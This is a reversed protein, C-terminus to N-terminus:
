LLGLAGLTRSLGEKGEEELIQNFDKKVQIIKRDAVYPKIYIYFSLAAARGPADDDTVVVVRKFTKCISAREKSEKSLFDGVSGPSWVSARIGAFKASLANLEGEVVVLTDSGREPLYFMPKRVGSPSRYKGGPFDPNTIRRKYYDYDPWLIYFSDDDCHLPLGGRVPRVPLSRIKSITADINEKYREFTESGAEADIGYPKLEENPGTKQCGFCYYHGDAYAELSETGDAHFPCHFKAL